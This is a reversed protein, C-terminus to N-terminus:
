WEMAVPSPLRRERRVEVERDRVGAQYLQLFAESRTLDLTDADHKAYALYKMFHLMLRQDPWERFPLPMGCLLPTSLTVSCELTLTDAVLPAPALTLVGRERERTFTQPRGRGTFRPAQEHQNSPAVERGDSLTALKIDLVARPIPATAEGADIPIVLTRYLSKTDRAVADAAETMYGLIEANKWLNESDPASADVGELPDAVERRFTDLMDDTTFM